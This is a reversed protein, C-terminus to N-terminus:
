RKKFDRAKLSYKKMLQYVRSRSLGLEECVPATKGDHKELVLRFHEKEASDRVAQLDRGPDVNDGERRKRYERRYRDPLDDISVPKGDYIHCIYRALNKLERINGPFGYQRYIYVRLADDIEPVAITNDAAIQRLFYNFLIEIEDRRERLPPIWIPCINLRYYLDERFQGDAVMRELNRNTAAIVRVDTKLPTDSGVRQIEGLDLVRLLKVQAQFELDGIEDLFITGGDAEEFKGKRDKAASTFAGKVHGFLESEILSQPFAGCNVAVLKTRKSNLHVLRAFLEKGVGTEGEFLVTIDTPAIKAIKKLNARIEPNQGLIGELELESVEPPKMPPPNLRQKEVEAARALISFHMCAARLSDLERFYEQKEAEDIMRNALIKIKISEVLAISQNVHGDVSDSVEDIKTLIPHEFVDSM